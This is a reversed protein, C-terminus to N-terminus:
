KKCNGCCGEGGPNRCRTSAGDESTVNVILQGVVFMRHFGSPTPTSAEQIISQFAQHIQDKQSVAFEWGSM